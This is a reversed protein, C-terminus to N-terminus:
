TNDIVQYETELAAADESLLAVVLYDTYGQFYDIFAAIRKSDIAELSDLLMLPLVEHVDHALYGALGFVLGTVVRESESLNDITDEYTAGSETQRIVHLKFVNKTVKRRGERVEQKKRELWIRALNDYELLDLVTEMHGNFEEIADKELREIRTRLEEIEETLEERENQLEDEENLREEIATINQNLREFESDLKGLEHELDNAEKHLSLIEEYSENELTEIEAEIDDVEARLADRRESLEEITEETEEIETELTQRRQTVIERRRKQEELESRQTTLDDLEDDIRNMEGVLEQSIDQLRVLTTEIEDRNVETGCTWCKLTKDPLLEDTVSASEAEEDMLDSIAQSGGELQEENFHIVSQIENLEAELEQKQQRLGDIQTDLGELQDVPAESLENYEQDLEHKKSQLSELSQQETEISYRVDELTSRTERLEELKAEVEAQEEWSEKIDTDKAKIAAEIDQLEAETEEIQAKLESREQKLTPLRTKLDDLEDLKDSVQRRQEVLREIKAQIHETDIPQMLIDRPNVGETVARRAENSELLFAFLDALTSDDLYPEGTISVSGNRRRLTRTYSNGATTLEIRGEDADAKLSIDDSGMAGMMAQLLSTRNTANRGALVTVGSKFTIETEDIGGINRVTLTATAKQQETDM